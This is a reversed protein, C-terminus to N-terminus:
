SKIQFYLPQLVSWFIPLRHQKMVVSQNRCTSVGTKHTRLQSFIENRTFFLFSLEL